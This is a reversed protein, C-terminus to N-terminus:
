HANITIYLAQNKCANCFTTDIITMVLIFSQKILDYHVLCVHLAINSSNLNYHPILHRLQLDYYIYIM